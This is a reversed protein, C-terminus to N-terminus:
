LKVDRTSTDTHGEGEAGVFGPHASVGEQHRCAYPEYDEKTQPIALWRAPLWLMLGHVGWRTNHPVPLLQVWSSTPHDLM